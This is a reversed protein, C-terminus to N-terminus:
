WEKKRALDAILQKKIMSYDLVLEQIKCETCLLTM